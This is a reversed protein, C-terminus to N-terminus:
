VKFRFVNWSLSKVNGNVKGNEFKTETNNVPKIADPTEYTNAKEMDDTFMEIHEIFSAGEFGSVDLEIDNSAEWNRNIVFINLEGKEKDYAAATEIFDVGEQEYYQNTDDVIYSPIDYTDCEVSTRMSTGRGYQMLQKYPHAAATSWVHEGDSAALVHLAGTMCGIKVRDAHRLFTMLISANNLAGLMDGGGRFPRKPMNSPDHRVYTANPNFNYNNRYHLYEYRGYHVEGKPRMMTGYEDFSLMMKKDSKLKAQMFDCLAIETNIYDEFYRSAGMYTPIDGLVVSQYHHMSIYDVSHYCEKLVQMDWDPYHYMNPSCSVCAATEIKPDVWKMAKSVENALLGYGRPDNKYSGIQWYGDMENGLYWVKVGYPDKHGYESRLDSWYTGGQHNTYEICSIADNINGTGLNITYLAETNAMEAWQLYEDHGVENTYYQHWALDLHAKRKDMPGISDKWDWGSVYNGGPLRTAPLGSAKIADIFDHRLGKEDATPHKPNFMSGNVMNGIPELFGAYVRPSIEGIEYAPHVTVKAKKPM